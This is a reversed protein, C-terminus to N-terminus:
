IKGTNEFEEIAAELAKDQATKETEYPVYFAEGFYFRNLQDKRFYQVTNYDVGSVNFKVFSVILCNNKSDASNSVEISKLVKVDAQNLFFLKTSPSTDSQLGLRFLQWGARADYNAVMKNISKLTNEPSSLDYKALDTGLPNNKLVAISILLAIISALLSLIILIRELRM